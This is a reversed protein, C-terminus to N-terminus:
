SAEDEDSREQHRTSLEAGTKPETGNKREQGLRVDRWAFPRECAPCIVWQGLVDGRAHRSKKRCRPCRLIM